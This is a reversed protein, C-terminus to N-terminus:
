GANNFLIDIRGFREITESVAQSIAKDDRVDGSFVLAESRRSKVERELATLDEPTGLQYGPYDIQRAIDYGIIRAGKSALVLATARGQGHAAGTIFAVKGDFERSM